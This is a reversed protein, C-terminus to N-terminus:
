HIQGTEARMSNVDLEYELKNEQVSEEAFQNKM